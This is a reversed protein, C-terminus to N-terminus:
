KIEGKELSNQNRFYWEIIMEANVLSKSVYQMFRVQDKTQYKRAKAINLNLGAVYRQINPADLSVIRDRLQEMTDMLSNYVIPRFLLRPRWEGGRVQELLDDIQDSLKYM